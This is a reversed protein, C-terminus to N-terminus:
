ALGSIGTLTQLDKVIRRSVDADSLSLLEDGQPAKLTHMGLKEAAKASDAHLDIFATEIFVTQNASVGLRELAMEFIRPDPKRVGVRCSEIVVDFLRSPDFKGGSHEALQDLCSKRDAVFWSNTVLATKIGQNRLAGIAKLVEDFFILKGHAGDFQLFGFITDNDKSVNYDSNLYGTTEWEPKVGVLERGFEPYFRPLKIKGLELQTVAGLQDAGSRKFAEVMLGLPWKLSKESAIIGKVTSPLITGNLDFIVAKPRSSLPQIAFARVCTFAHARQLQGGFIALRPLSMKTKLLYCITLV